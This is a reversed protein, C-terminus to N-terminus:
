RINEARNVKRYGGVLLGGCDIGHVADPIIGIMGLAGLIRPSLGIKSSFTHLAQIFRLSPTFQYGCVVMLLSVGHTHTYRTFM